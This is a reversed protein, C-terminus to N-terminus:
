NEVEGKLWEFYKENSSVPIKIICPVNYSHMKEVENKVKEFNGEITKVVLVFETEDAIKGKWSYLSEIDSYINACAVLKKELLHKAIKRAEEKTPNTIYILIFNMALPPYLSDFLIIQYCIIKEFGETELGDRSM